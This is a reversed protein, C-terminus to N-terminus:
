VDDEKKNTTLEAINAALNTGFLCKLLQQVAEVTASPEVTFTSRLYALIDEAVRSFETLSGVEMLVSANRLTSVMLDIFTHSTETDLSMKYNAFAGRLGEFVRMYHSSTVFSGLTTTAGKFSDRREGGSRDEKEQRSAATLMWRDLDSKRRKVPSLNAATVAASAAPPLGSLMTKSPPPAPTLENLVHGFINLLKVVHCLYQESLNGFPESSFMAWVLPTFESDVHPGILSLSNGAYLNATLDLVNMHTRIDYIHTSNGFMNVCMRLLDPLTEKALDESKKFDKTCWAHRYVTCPYTKSLYSLTELCGSILHKSTSTLVFNCLKVLIKSLSFEMRECPKQLMKNFPFPMQRIFNKRNVSTDSESEKLCRFLIETEIVAKATVSSDKVRYEAFYLQPIIKVISNAAATRVRQDSDDLLEFLVNYVIKQQFDNNKTIFQVTIYDIKSVLECLEVKVLWYPNKALLPLHQLVPLMASGSKSALLHSLCVELSILTQRICTSSEDTLGELFMRALSDVSFADERGAAANRRIWGDYGGGEDVVTRVFRGVLQRVVGRLQPDCHGRFLLVDDVRQTSGTPPAKRGGESQGVAVGGDLPTFMGSPFLRFVTSLCTLALHKVSVRVTKDPLYNNPTGTLLFRRCILRTLHLLPHGDYISGVDIQQF